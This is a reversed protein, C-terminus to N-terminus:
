SNGPHPKIVFYLSVANIRGMKWGCGLTIVNRDGKGERGDRAAKLLVPMIM